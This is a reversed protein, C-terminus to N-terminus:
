QRADRFARRITAPLIPVEHIEVGDNKLADNIANAIAPGVPIIAAEGLGKQGYSTHPSRTEGLELAPEPLDAASPIVYERFSHAARSFTTYPAAEFLATGMGQAWAGYIQGEAILPNILLGADTVMVYDDISIRGTEVNVTVKVGHGGFSFTGDEPEPRYGTVVELGMPDADHPLDYPRYYWITAIESFTVFGSLAQFRGGEFRLNSEDVQLLHAAVRMCRRRLERCAAMVAGSVIVGCRSGWVGTSYPSNGTDGHRILIADIPIGLEHFVVQALSTELGQGHSQVGTRIEVGGDPQMILAVQEFGPTSAIGLSKYVKTGYAAQQFYFAIGVGRRLQGTEKAQARRFDEIDLQRVLRSLLAPYDGNDLQKGTASRYPMQSPSILNNMRVRWPELDVARALADIALETVLCAGPRATGRFPIAPPKNTVVASARVSYNEVAYPGALLAGLSLGELCATFPFASYAGADAAADAEIAQIKGRRDARITISTAYERSNAGAILSEQRDQIWRFTGRRTIALWCVLVEESSLSGKYGFGGGVDPAVVRILREPVGLTRAIGTRFIHPSQASIWATLTGSAKDWSAAIGRCELPAANQRASKVSCKVTVPADAAVAVDGATILSEVHLNNPWSEHVRRADSRRADIIDLVPPLPDLQLGIRDIIDEAQARSRGIAAAIPEGEFRVSDGALLPQFAPRYGVISAEARIPGLRELDAATIVNDRLEDPVSVSRIKAAPMPSRLFAIDLMNPLAVDAVFRAAGDLFRRDEVRPARGGIQWDKRDGTM